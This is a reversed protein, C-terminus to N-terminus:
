RLTFPMWHWKLVHVLDVPRDQFNMTKDIPRTNESRRKRENPMTAEGARRAAGRAQKIPEKTARESSCLGSRSFGKRDDERKSKM